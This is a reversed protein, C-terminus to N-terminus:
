QEDDNQLCMHLCSSVEMHERRYNIDSTGTYVHNSTRRRKNPTAGDTDMPSAGNARDNPVLGVVQYVLM